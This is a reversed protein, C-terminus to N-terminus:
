FLEEDNKRRGSSCGRTWSGEGWWGRSTGASRSGAALGSSLRRACEEGSGATEWREGEAACPPWRRWGEQLVSWCCCCSCRRSWDPLPPERRVDRKRGGSLANRSRDCGFLPGGVKRACGRVCIGICSGFAWIWWLVLHSIYSWRLCCIEKFM